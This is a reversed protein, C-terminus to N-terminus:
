RGSKVSLKSVSKQSKATVLKQQATTLSKKANEEDATLTDKKATLETVKLNLEEIQKSASEPSNQNQLEISEKIKQIDSELEKCRDALKECKNVGFDIKKILSEDLTTGDQLRLSVNLEDLEKKANLYEEIKERNKLDNEQAIIKKVSLKKKVVEDYKAKNKAINQNLEAKKRADCDATILRDKLDEYLRMDEAYSGVKGSKSIVKNKADSLTKQIKQYSTDESGTVAINSLRKNIEGTADSDNKFDGGSNIFLTREFAAASMGFFTVGVSDGFDVAKGLNTDILRIQDTSDSKRFERELCYNKNEHTFYIKGAMVSCDWPTYKLRVSDAINKSNRGTGFFMSKIFTAVNSKGDENDGYIVNFGDNLELTFDKLGGFASIYIKNIKM